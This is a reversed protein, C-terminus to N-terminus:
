RLRGCRWGPLVAGTLPREDDAGPLAVEPVTVQHAQGIVEPFGSEVRWRHHAEGGGRAQCGSRPSVAAHGQGGAHGGALTVEM